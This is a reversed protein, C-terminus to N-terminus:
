RRDVRGADLVDERREFVGVNGRGLGALDGVPGAEDDVAFGGVVGTGVREPRRHGLVHLFEVLGRSADAVAEPEPATGLAPLQRPDRVTPSPLPGPPSAPQLASVPSGSSVGVDPGVSVATGVLVSVGPSVASPPLGRRSSQRGDVLSTAASGSVSASNPAAGASDPAM